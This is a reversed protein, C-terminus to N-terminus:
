EEKKGYSDIMRQRAAAADSRTGDQRDQSMDLRGKGAERADANADEVLSSAASDYAASLYQANKGDLSLKPFAKAIVLRKIDEDTQDEKFEIGADTAVKEIARRQRIATQIASADMKNKSEEELKDAKAKATDREAELTSKDAKLQKNESDLRSNDEQVKTLTEIVKAEAQYEVGDIKIVKM